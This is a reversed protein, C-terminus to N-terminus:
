VCRSTYLLCHHPLYLRVRGLDGALYIRQWRLASRLLLALNTLLQRKYVDLHTYSVPLLNLLAQELEVRMREDTRQQSLPDAVEDM